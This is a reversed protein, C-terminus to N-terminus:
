PQQGKGVKFYIVHFGFPRGKFRLIASGVTENWEDKEVKCQYQSAANDYNHAMLNNRVGLSGILAKATHSINWSDNARAM